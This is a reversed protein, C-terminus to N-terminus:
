ETRQKLKARWYYEREISQPFGGYGGHYISILSKMANVVGQHAAQTYLSVVEGMDPAGMYGREMWVALAYKAPPYVRAAKKMYDIAKERNQPIKDGADYLLALIYAAEAFDYQAAQEYYYVAKSFNQSVGPAGHHYLRALYLASLIKAEKLSSKQVIKFHTIAKPADTKLLDIGMILHNELTLHYTHNLVIGATLFFLTLLGGWITRQFPSLIKRKM